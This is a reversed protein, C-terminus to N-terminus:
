HKYNQFSIIKLQTKRCLSKHMQAANKTETQSIQKRNRNSFDTKQKQKLFRNETETQSIQKRNRNSYDTKQKQKLFRNETETQSIQKRNRNSYNNWM